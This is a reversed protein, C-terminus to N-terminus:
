GRIRLPIRYRGSGIRRGNDPHSPIVALFYHGSALDAVKVAFRVEHTTGPALQFVAGYTESVEHGSGTSLVLLPVTAVSPTAADNAFLATVEITGAAAEEPAHVERVSLRGSADAAPSSAVAEERVAYAVQRLASGEPSLALDRAFRDNAQRYRAFRQSVKVAGAADSTAEIQMGDHLEYLQDRSLFWPGSVFDSLITKAQKLPIDHTSRFAPEMDLGEGTWTVQQPRKLGYNHALFALVSPTIDLQSSVSRIRVPQKLMPSFVILPVHYREIRTDMPIEPLRHDGTVIFITNAYDPDHAAAEFYRRLADDTFLVASYIDAFERYGAKRAADIHMEDLRQEFRRRYEPQRPFRYSSHMTMTQVVTVVPKANTRPLDALVRSILENDDYGWSSYPNRLYQSGFGASDVIRDVGQGQLYARENDFGADTGSYFQLDYGQDKLVRLLGAHPPMRDGLAAFGREGFPLSGFVSPLVAFTRGQNALFNSWYLSRGALEDLFPTFSGRAADPGSFSRGLGEVIIFVLNPPRGPTPSFYPGLADPTQERHLFPYRPDSAAAAYAGSPSLRRYRLNDEVFYAAKNLVQTYATESAFAQAPIRWPLWWLATAAALLVVATSASRLWPPRRALGLLVSWLVVLPLVWGALTLADWQVGGSATTRVEQWSYGFLDAGLPVRAVLYYQELAIQVLLWLSWLLGVAPVRLRPARLTLLPWTMLWLPLLARAFLLLDDGFAYGLVRAGDTPTWGATTAWSAWVRLCLAGLLLAPALSLFRTVAAGFGVRAAESADKGARTSPPPLRVSMSAM